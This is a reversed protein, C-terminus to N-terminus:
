SSSVTVGQGILRNYFKKKLKIIVSGFINNINNIRLQVVSVRQFKLLNNIIMPFHKTFM